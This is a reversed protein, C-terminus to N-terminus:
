NVSQTVKASKAPMPILKGRDKLIKYPEGTIYMDIPLKAFPITLAAVGEDLLEKGIGSSGKGYHVNEPPYRFPSESDRRAQAKLKSRDYQFNKPNEYISGALKPDTKGDGQWVPKDTPVSRDLEHNSIKIPPMIRRYFGDERMKIRTFDNVADVLEKEVGPKSLQEFLTENLAKAEDFKARSPMHGIAAGQTQYAFFETKYDNPIVPTMPEIPPLDKAVLKTVLLPAALAGGLLGKLFGRRQM